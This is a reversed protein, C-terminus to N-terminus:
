PKSTLQLGESHEQTYSEAKFAHECLKTGPNPNLEPDANSSGISWFPRTAAFEATAVASLAAAPPIPARKVFRTKSSLLVPSYLNMMSMAVLPASDPSTAIVLPQVTTSGHAATTIPM